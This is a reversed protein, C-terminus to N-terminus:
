AIREEPIEITREFLDQQFVLLERENWRVTVFPERDQNATLTLTAGAPISVICNGQTAHVGRFSVSVWYQKPAM